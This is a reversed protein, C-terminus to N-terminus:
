GKRFCDNENPREVDGRVSPTRIGISARLKLAARAPIGASSLMM